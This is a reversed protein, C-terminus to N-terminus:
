ILACRDPVDTEEAENGKTGEPKVAGKQQMVDECGVPGVQLGDVLHAGDANRPFVDVTPQFVVEHRLDGQPVVRRCIADAHRVAREKGLRDGRRWEWTCLGGDLVHGHYLRLKRNCVGGGPAQLERLESRDVERGPEGRVVPSGDHHPITDRSGGTGLGPLCRRVGQCRVLGFSAIVWRAGVEPGAGQIGTSTNRRATASTQGTASVPTM